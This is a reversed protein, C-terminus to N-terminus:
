GSPTMMRVGHRPWQYESPNRTFYDLRTGYFGKELDDELRSILDKSYQAVDHHVAFQRRAADEPSEYDAWYERM